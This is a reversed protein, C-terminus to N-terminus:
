APSHDVFGSGAVCNWAPHGRRLFQRRWLARECVSECVCGSSILTVISGGTPTSPTTSLTTTTPLATIVVTAPASTSSQFIGLSTSANGPYVATLGHTGATLLGTDFEANSFPDLTTSGIVVAGDYFTVLGSLITPPTTAPATSTVHAVLRVTQGALAAAPTATLVTTTLYAPQNVTQTVTVSSPAYNSDGSYAAQVTHHGPNLPSNTSVSASNSALPQSAYLVGDVLFNITGTPAPAGAATSLSVTATFPQGSAVPQPALALSLLVRAGGLPTGSPQNLLVAVTTGSINIAIIDPAGDGNVDAVSLPGLTSGAVYHDEQAFSRSGQYDVVSIGSTASLVLDPHNDGNVDALVINTYLHSPVIMAPAAFTGDGNGWFVDILPTGTTASTLVLDANGDGDIDAIAGPVPSPYGLPGSPDVNLSGSYTFTGDGNGLWVEDSTQDSLVIDQKGDGNLDGIARLTAFTPNRLQTSTEVFRENAQGLEVLIQDNGNGSVNVTDARGDGHFDAVFTTQDPV